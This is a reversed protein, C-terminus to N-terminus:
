PHYESISVAVSFLESQPIYDSGSHRLPIDAGFAELLYGEASECIFPLFAPVAPEAHEVLCSSLLASIGSVLLITGLKRLVFMGELRM